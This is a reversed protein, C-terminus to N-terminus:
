CFGHLETQSGFSKVLLAHSPYLHGHPQCVNDNTLWGNSTVFGACVSVTTLITSRTVLTYGRFQNVAVSVAISGPRLRGVLQAGAVVGCSRGCDNPRTASEM